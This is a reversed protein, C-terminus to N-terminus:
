WRAEASPRHGACGVILPTGMLLAFLVDMVDNDLTRISFDSVTFAARSGLEFSLALRLLRAVVHNAHGAPGFTPAMAELDLLTEDADFVILPPGTM